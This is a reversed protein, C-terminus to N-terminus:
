KLLQSKIRKALAAVVNVTVSNGFQKWAQMNSENPIFEDPFGQLRAAERPTLKRPNQGEQAILIESGDKYYRASITNTYLSESTVLGFGFGKGNTENRVKRLQHGSWLRDSITFKESPNEELIDGVRTEQGTPAPYEFFTRAPNKWLVIFIRQRNQPIGFDCSKLVMSKAISQIEAPSGSDILDQPINCRYGIKSLTKLIVQLTYGKDHSILGKVNELVAVAPKKVELIRAIDHFLTGRTDAIGLKLGAHSFPQCPFGAVLVDHDPICEPPIKTIDGFPYDGHNNFYTNQANKEFESSFVCKGGANQFGLRMGGIGAFLDIFSFATKNPPALPFSKRLMSQLSRESAPAGVTKLIETLENKTVGLNSGYLDFGYALAHLWQNAIAKPSSGDPTFDMAFGILAAEAKEFM